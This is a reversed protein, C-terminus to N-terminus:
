RGAASCGATHAPGRPPDPRPRVYTEGLDAVDYLSMHHFKANNPNGVLEAREAREKAIQVV